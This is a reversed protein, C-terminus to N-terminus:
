IPNGGPAHRPRCPRGHFRNQGCEDRRYREANSALDDGLPELEWRDQRQQQEANQASRTADAQHVRGREAVCEFRQDVEPHRDDQELAPQGEIWVTEGLHPHRNAVQQGDSYRDGRNARGPQRVGEGAHRPRRRRQEPRHHRDGARRHDHRQEPVHDRRALYLRDEHGLAQDDIWDARDEGVDDERPNLAGVQAFSPIV